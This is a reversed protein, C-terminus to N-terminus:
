KSKAAHEARAQKIVDEIDLPRGADADLQKIGIEVEARLRALADLHDLLERGLQGQAADPLSAAKSFALDLTKVM